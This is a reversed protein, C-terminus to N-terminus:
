ACSYDRLENMLRATIAHRMDALHFFNLVCCDTILVMSSAKCNCLENTVSCIVFTQCVIEGTLQIHNQKRSHHFWYVGSKSVGDSLHELLYVWEFIFPHSHGIRKKSTSYNASFCIITWFANMKWCSSWITNLWCMFSFFM